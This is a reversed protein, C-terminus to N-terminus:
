SGDCAEQCAEEASKVVLDAVSRIIWSHPPTSEDIEIETLDFYDIGEPQEEDIYEQLITHEEVHDSLFTYHSPFDVIVGDVLENGYDIRYIGQPEHEEGGFNFKM